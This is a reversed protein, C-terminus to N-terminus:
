TPEKIFVEKCEGRLNTLIMEKEPSSKIESILQILRSQIHEQIRPDTKVTDKMSEIIRDIILPSISAFIEAFGDCLCRKLDSFMPDINSNVSAAIPAFNLERGKFVDSVNPLIGQELTANKMKSPAPTTPPRPVSIPPTTSSPTPTPTKNSEFMKKIDDHGGILKGQIFCMPFSIQQKTNYKNNLFENQFKVKNAKTIHVEKLQYGNQPILVKAKECFPCDELSIMVVTKPDKNEEIAKVANVVDQNQDEEPKDM